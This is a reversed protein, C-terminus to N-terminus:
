LGIGRRLFVHHFEHESADIFYLKNDRTDLVIKVSIVQGYKQYLPTSGMSEFEAHSAIGISTGQSCGLFSWLLIIAISITRLM